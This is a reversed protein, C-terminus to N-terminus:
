DNPIEGEDGFKVLCLLVVLIILLIGAFVQKAARAKSKAPSTLDWDEIKKVM